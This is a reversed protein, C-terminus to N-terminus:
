RPVSWRWVETGAATKDYAIVVIETVGLPFEVARHVVLQEAIKVASEVTAYSRGQMPYLARGVRYGPAFMIRFPRATM